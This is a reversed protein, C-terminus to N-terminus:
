LVSLQDFESPDEDVFIWRRKELRLVMLEDIDISKRRNPHLLEVGETQYLVVAHPLTLM